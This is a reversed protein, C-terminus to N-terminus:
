VGKIGIWTTSNLPFLMATTFTSLSVSSTPTAAGMSITVGTSAYVHLTNASVNGIIYQDAVTTAGKFTPLSIAKTGDTDTNYVVWQKGLLQTASAFTGTGASAVLLPGDGGSSVFEALAWQMGLGELDVAMSM